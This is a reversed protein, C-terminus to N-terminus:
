IEHIKKLKRFKMPIKKNMQLLLIPMLIPMLISATTDLCYNLPSNPLLKSALRLLLHLCYCTYATAYRCDRERGTLLM